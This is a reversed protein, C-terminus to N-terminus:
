ITAQYLNEDTLNEGKFEQTMKGSKMILARDCLATIEAIDDSVVLVAMGQKALERLLKHIDYKAGIDVGVTPGNLILIKPNTALWRALVVKQQNGGSLTEVPLTHDNTAVGIEEVWHASLDKQASEKVIGLVGSLKKLSTVAINKYIPQPLFLGETLRDEPVLAMGYKQADTVNKLRVEEGSIRISGSTSKSMGFLVLSLETRGSGLQGAIGLVEGAYLCFNVHEFGEASLDTVELVKEAKSLDKTEKIHSTDISRGTMYYTFKEETMESVLCRHVNQGNRLITISDSIEFVEDLKHSVFLITIGEKKLEEIIGFLRTVEKKTLATTPEDMIILKANHLLARSIAILQKDAVPLTEVRADLDVDFNIKKVAEEAIIRFKQKNVFKKKEALIQNFALNEMVTLNPFISFDQYIVQIGAAIADATSMNNYIKGDIEITGEDPRYFGSIVKIITSKGCGNEGALCHTEGKKITLDVGKLAHVGGFSKKINKVCLINDLMIRVRKRFM